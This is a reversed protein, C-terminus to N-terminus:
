DYVKGFLSWTFTNSIRGHLEGTSGATAGLSFTGGLFEGEGIGDYTFFADGGVGLGYLPVGTVPITGSMGVYQSTGRFNKFSNFRGWELSASASFGKTSFGKGAHSGGGVDLTGYIGIDESTAILYALAIKNAWFAFPNLIDDFKTTTFVTFAAAYLANDEGPKPIFYMGAGVAGSPLLSTFALNLGATYVPKKLSDIESVQQVNKFEITYRKTIEGWRRTNEIYERYNKYTEGSTKREQMGRPDVYMLPNNECYGYWNIGKIAPDQTLFRGTVPDYYRANFYILGTADYQKGTFSRYDDSGLDQTAEGWASYRYRDVATGSSDIVVRRSSLYDLYFYVVSDTSPYVRKYQALIQGNVIINFTTQIRGSSDYVEQMLPNIGDFLTYTTKPTGEADEIKKVRLGAWNYWYDDTQSHVIQRLSNLNDYSLASFKNSVSVPNGNADYTYEHQTGDNFSALRMQDGNEKDPDQYIYKAAGKTTLNSLEDYTQTEEEGSSLRNMGDFSYTYDIAPAPSLEPEQRRTINCYSLNFLNDLSRIDV